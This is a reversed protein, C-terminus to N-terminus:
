NVEAEDCGAGGSVARQGRRGGGVERMGGGQRRKMEWESDEERRGGQSRGELQGESRSWLVGVALETVELVVVQVGVALM